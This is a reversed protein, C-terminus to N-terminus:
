QNISTIHFERVEPTPSYETVQTGMVIRTEGPWVAVKYKQNAPIPSVAIADPSATASVTGTLPNSAGSFESAGTDPYTTATFPFIKAKFRRTSGNQINDVNGQVTLNIMQSGPGGTVVILTVNGGSDIPKIYTWTAATTFPMICVEGGSQTPKKPKRASKKPPSAKKATKKKAM